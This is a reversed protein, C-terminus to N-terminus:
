AFVRQSYESSQEESENNTIPNSRVAFSNTYEPLMEYLNTLTITLQHLEGICHKKLFGNHPNMLITAWLEKQMKKIEDIRNFYEHIYAYNSKKYFELRALASKKVNHRIVHLYDIGIELGSKAKIYALAEKSTLQQIQTEIVLQKLESRQYPTFKSM